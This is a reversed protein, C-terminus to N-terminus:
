PRVTIEEPRGLLEGDAVLRGTWDAIYAESFFSIRVPVNRELRGSFVGDATSTFGAAESLDYEMLARDGLREDEIFRYEIALSVEADNSGAHESLSFTVHGRVRVLGDGAEELDVVPSISIPQPEAPPIPVGRGAGRIVKRMLENFAPLIIDESRPVDPKLSRRFENVKRYIWSTVVKAVKAADPDLEGDTDDSRWADHAKPETQRLYDDISRRGESAETDAVFSGRVYPPTRGAEYYEVVMRPGRVLAILSRHSHAEADETGIQDAYSWDELDSTLALRGLIRGRSLDESINRSLKLHEFAQKRKDPQSRENAIEWSEIFTKLVADRKPRPVIETGDYDVVSVIFENEVIAPWWNRELAHVLEQPDVTPDVLLFTTGLDSSTGPNRPKIGLSSALADAAANEFPVVNQSSSRDGLRAFGTFNAGDCDHQGWYTMGLFRRTVGLENAQERFCSYACVSRIKSGSILGAKGYGYSGGAGSSKITYGVSVLAWYMRSRADAWPGYMGTTAHEVIKLVRLPAGEYRLDDLCDTPQLGLHKRGEKVRSLRKSLGQLDFADVFQRKEAGALEEFRFELMFQPTTPDDRQLERAADWSNQLVERAMLTAASSPAKLAMVGPKKPEEHRFLKALDGSSGSRSPDTREWTWEQNM